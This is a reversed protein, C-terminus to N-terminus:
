IWGHRARIARLDAEKVRALDVGVDSDLALGALSGKSVLGSARTADGDKGLWNVKPELTSTAVNQKSDASDLVTKRVTSRRSKRRAGGRVGGDDVPNQSQQKALDLDTSHTKALAVRTYFQDVGKAIFNDDPEEMNPLVGICALLRPVDDLPIQPQPHERGDDPETKADPPTADYWTLYRQLEPLNEAGQMLFALFLDRIQGYTLKKSVHLDECIKQFIPWSMDNMGGYNKLIMARLEAQRRGIVHLVPLQDLFRYSTLGM